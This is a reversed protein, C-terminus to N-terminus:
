AALHPFFLSIIENTMAVIDAEQKRRLELTEEYKGAYRLNMCEICNRNSIYREAQHGLICPVSSRYRNRGKAKQTKYNTM